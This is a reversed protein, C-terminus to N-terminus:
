AKIELLTQAGGEPESSQRSNQPGPKPARGAALEELVREFSEATLDEYNDDHIQVM